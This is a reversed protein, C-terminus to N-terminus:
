LSLYREALLLLGFCWFIMHYVKKLLVFSRMELGHKSTFLLSFLIYLLILVTYTYFIWPAIGFKDTLMRFFVASLLFLANDTLYVAKKPFLQVTTFVRNNKDTEFDRLEQNIEGAIFVSGLFLGFRIVPMVKHTFPYFGMAFHGSAALYHILYPIFPVSKLNIKKASYAFSLALMVIGLVPIGLYVTALLYLVATVASIILTIRPGVTYIIRNRKVFDKEDRDYGAWDNYLYIHIFLCITGLLSLLSNLSFLQSRDPVSFLAGLFTMGSLLVIELLRPDHLINKKM